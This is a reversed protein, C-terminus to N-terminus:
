VKLYTMTPWPLFQFCTQHVVIHHPNLRIYAKILYVQIDSWGLWVQIKAGKPPISLMGDADSLEIDVTDVVLGRNDKVTLSMLRTVMQPSIDVGDVEVRFIPTPYETLKDYANIANNAVNLVQNLM